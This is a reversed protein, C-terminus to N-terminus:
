FAKRVDAPNINNTPAASATELVASADAGMGAHQAERELSTRFHKCGVFLLGVTLATAIANIVTMSHGVALPSGFVKDTVLAVLTTGLGLGILNSVLLFLASIQARMQNPALAQMAAASTALPFSAFFMAVVLWALSVGLSASQAFAVAPVFMCAAGICAARLPADAHGRRLLLDSLWGGCFVGATNAVLLVTGLTYGAEVPSLGFHRMYFAPSWSMLCYLTMAYFSFGLYHCFFTKRHTGVFRLSDAMSVRKVQGAGDQALGKRAPDRVTLRFLLAILLGPLGVILFTIQWARVDGILPLTFVSAHKLLAIVYGGVLFAVGGGIFSGLSYVGVARGLRSKPFLDALMSYTGPSLAAEGVGVSMRSLFMQVFNQSVGCAATAVSWLAIGGAIIRPRSFRDALYALPMGMVAYFLSFAFGHLLSFQTDSLQLDRKIPEIMLALVQRDVFSFIYALMCIVVVYWEYTYRRNSTRTASPLNM